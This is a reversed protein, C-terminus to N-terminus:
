ARAPTAKREIMTKIAAVVQAATLNTADIVIADDARKLPALERSRDREDREVLQRLVEARTAREGRAALEAWRREARVKVDADLYFKFEADPFIATGIDRGEMVVGGDKGAARQLERMRGRVESLTSFRSALDGVEPEAIQASVDRGGLLLRDGDFAIRLSELIPRLRSALDAEAPKVGGERAALAVARYMAGTNVYSFGLARALARAVTSKGAGVPGDIAIIPRERSM